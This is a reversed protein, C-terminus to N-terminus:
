REERYALMFWIVEIALLAFGLIVFWLENHAVSAIILGVPMVMAVAVAIAEDLPDRFTSYRRGVAVLFALIALLLNLALLEGVM